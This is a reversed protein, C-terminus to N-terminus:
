FGDGPSVREYTKDNFPGHDFAKANPDNQGLWDVLEAYRLPDRLIAEIDSPESVVVYPIM